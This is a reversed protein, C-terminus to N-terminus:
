NKGKKRNGSSKGKGSSNGTMNTKQSSTSNERKWEESFKVKVDLPDGDTDLNILPRMVAVEAKTFPM